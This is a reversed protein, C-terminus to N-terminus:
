KTTAVYVGNWESPPPDAIMTRCRSALVRSAPDEPSSALLTLARSFDRVFYAELAQEYTKAKALADASAHQTGLLEYVRVSEAKGKVAVRDLFRFAFESEVETVIAESVLVTVGYQKCLGELRSALNVGDGLATYSLRDPAGFHGVMVKASSDASEEGHREAHTLSVDSLMPHSLLESFLRTEVLAPEEVRLAGFRMATEIDDLTKAAVGLEESLRAGVRLAESDRLRDSREVISQRSSELFAYFTAGVALAVALTTLVFLQVLTSRSVRTPSFGHPANVPDGPAESPM